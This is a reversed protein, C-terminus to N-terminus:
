GYAYSTGSRNSNISVVMREKSVSLLPVQNFRALAGAGLGASAPMTLRPDVNRGGRLSKFGPHVIIYVGALIM